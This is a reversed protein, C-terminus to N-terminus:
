DRAAFRDYASQYAAVVQDIGLKKLQDVYSDFNSLPEKGFVFNLVMEDVYTQIDNMKSAIIDNEEATFILSPLLMTRQTDAWTSFAKKQNDYKLRLQEFQRGDSMMPGPFYQVHKRLMEEITKGEPPNMLSDLFKPSGNVMNYSVGEVGFNFLMNGETGYKYDLWEVAKQPNECQTTISTLLSNVKPAYYGYPAKEGKKLSPYPTASFKVGPTDAMLDTFKMLDSIWGIFAGAKNGAIKADMTSTNMTAFDPDILGDEYWGNFLELFQKYEPQIEGYKVTDGDLYFKRTIGYAGIFAHSRRIEHLPESRTSFILPIEDAEGNGNPDGSKMKHLATDWEEITTPIDLGLKDLWDERIIPGYFVRVADDLTLYPFYFIEGKDASLLKRVEDDSKLIKQLNPASDELYDNLKIIIGDEYAQREGGPLYFRWYGEIIDPLDGSAIMLNFQEKSQNQPAVIWNIKVGTRKEAEQYCTMPNYGLEPDDVNLGEIWYDFEVLKEASTGTEEKSGAAFSLVIPLLLLVFLVAIRKQKLMNRAEELYESKFNAHM